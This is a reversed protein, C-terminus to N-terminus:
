LISSVSVSRVRAPDEASVEPMRFAAVGGLIDWNEM